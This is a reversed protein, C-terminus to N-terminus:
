PSCDFSDVAEQDQLTFVSLMRRLKKVQLCHVDENAFLFVVLKSCCYCQCAAHMCSNSNYLQKTNADLTLIALHLVKM